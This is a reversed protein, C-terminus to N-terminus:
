FKELLQQCNQDRSRSLAARPCPYQTLDPAINRSIERYKGINEIESVKRCNAINRSCQDPHAQEWIGSEIVDVLGIGEKRMRTVFAEIPAPDALLFSVATARPPGVGSCCQCGWVHVTSEDDYEDPNALLKQAAAIIAKPLSPKFSAKRKAATM